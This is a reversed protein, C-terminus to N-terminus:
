IYVAMGLAALGALYKSHRKPTLNFKRLSSALRDKEEQSFKIEMIIHPYSVASSNYPKSHPLPNYFQVAQDFTIRIQGLGEYYERKYSVHLTPSLYTDNLFTDDGGLDAHIKQFLDRYETDLLDEHLHTLPFRDKRGLRGQRFKAEFTPSQVESPDGNHYWRLRLKRRDSIGALNDRVSSYGPDDFYVSNVVRSPHAKKASTHMMMWSQARSLGAQDLVFKLEYRFASM